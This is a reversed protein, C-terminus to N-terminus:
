WLKWWPRDVPGDEPIHKRYMLTEQAEACVVHTNYCGASHCNGCSECRTSKCWPCESGYEVECYVREPRLPLEVTNRRRRTDPLQVVNPDNPDNYRNPDEHQNEHLVLGDPEESRKSGFCFM